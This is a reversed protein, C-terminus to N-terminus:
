ERESPTYAGIKEVKKLKAEFTTTDDTTGEALVDEVKYKTANDGERMYLESTVIFKREYATTVTGNKSDKVPESDKIVNVAVSKVKMYINYTKNNITKTMGTSLEDEVKLTIGENAFFETSIITANAADKDLVFQIHANGANKSKGLSYFLDSVRVALRSGSEDAILCTMVSGLVGEDATEAYTDHLMTTANKAWKYDVTASVATSTYGTVYPHDKKGDQIQISVSAAKQFVIFNPNMTLQIAASNSKEAEFQAAAPVSFVNNDNKLVKLAVSSASATNLRSLVLSSINTEGPLLSVSQSSKAFYAGMADASAAESITETDEYDSCGVLMVAPTMLLGFLLKNLKM